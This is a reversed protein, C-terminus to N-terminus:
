PAAFFGLIFKRTEVTPGIELAKQFFRGAEKKEGDKALCRGIGAYSEGILVNSVGLRLGLAIAERYAARAASCDGRLYAVRGLREYVQIKERESEGLASRLEREADKFRGAEMLRSARAIQADRFDKVDGVRPIEVLERLSEEFTKEKKAKESKASSDSWRMAITIRHSSGIDGLPAFAYDVRYREFVGGFGFRVGPGANGKTTWGFRLFARRFILSELGMHLDPAQGAQRSVDFSLLHRQDTRRFIRSAGFRLLFPLDEKDSEFRASPGINAFSLGARWDRMFEHTFIAGIDLAVADASIGAIEEKVYKVGAGASLGSFVNRGYGLSFALDRAEFTGLTGNPESITTKPIEGYSVYDIGGAFGREHSFAAYQHSVGQVYRNDAFVLDHYAARALGAPNYRLSFADDSVSSVAGGLAAARAGVDLILFDFSQGGGAAYAASGALPGSLFILTLLVHVSRM